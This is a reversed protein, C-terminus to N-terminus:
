DKILRIFEKLAGAAKKFQDQESEDLDLEIVRQIGNRGIV